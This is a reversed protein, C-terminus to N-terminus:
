LFANRRGRKRHVTITLVLRYYQPFSQTSQNALCKSLFSLFLFSLFMPQDNFIITIAIIIIIITLTIIFAIVSQQHILLFAVTSLESHATLLISYLQHSAQPCARLLLMWGSLRPVAAERLIFRSCSYLFLLESSFSHISSSIM